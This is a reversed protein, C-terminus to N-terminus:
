AFMRLSRAAGRSPNLPAQAQYLLAPFEAFAAIVAADSSQFTVTMRKLCCKQVVSM